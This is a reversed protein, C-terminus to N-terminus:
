AALAAHYPSPTTATRQDVIAPQAIFVREAFDDAIKESTMDRYATHQLGYLDEWSHVKLEKSISDWNDLVYKYAKSDPAM